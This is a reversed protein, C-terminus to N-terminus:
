LKLVFITFFRGGERCDYIVSYPPLLCYPLECCYKGLIGMLGLYSGVKKSKEEDFMPSFVATRFHSFTRRGTVAGNPYVYAGLFGFGKVV